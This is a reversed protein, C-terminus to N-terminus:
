RLPGASQQEAPPQTPDDPKIGREMALRRMLGDLDRCLELGNGEFPGAVAMAGKSLPM